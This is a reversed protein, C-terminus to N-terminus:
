RGDKFRLPTAEAKNILATLYDDLRLKISDSQEDPTKHPYRRSSSATPVNISRSSVNPLRLFTLFSQYSQRGWLMGVEFWIIEQSLSISLRRFDATHVTPLHWNFISSESGFDFEFDIDCLKIYLHRRQTIVSTASLVRSLSLDNSPMGSSPPSSQSQHEGLQFRM